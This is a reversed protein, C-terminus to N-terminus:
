EGQMSGSALAKKLSEAEEDSLAVFSEGKVIEKIYEYCGERGHITNIIIGNDKKDLLTLAFSLNGGMEQFADYKVLGVKRLHASTEKDMDKVSKELKKMNLDIQDMDDFCALLANELSKGSKGRMFKKYNTLLKNQTRTINILLVFLIVVCVVLIIIIIAPDFPLKSLLTSEM